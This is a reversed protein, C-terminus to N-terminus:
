DNKILSKWDIKLIEKDNSEEDKPKAEENEKAEESKQANSVSSAEEEKHPKTQEEVSASKQEAKILEERTKRDLALDLVESFTLNGYEERLCDLIAKKGKGEAWLSFIREKLSENKELLSYIIEGGLRGIARRFPSAM